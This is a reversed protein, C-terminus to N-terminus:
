PESSYDFSTQAERRTNIRVTFCVTFINMEVQEISTRTHGHGAIASRTLVTRQRAGGLTMLFGSVDKIDDQKTKGLRYQRRTEATQHTQSIRDRFESLEMEVLNWKKDMRSNGTNIKLKM